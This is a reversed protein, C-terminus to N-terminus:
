GKQEKITVRIHASEEFIVGKDNETKVELEHYGAKLGSVDVYAKIKEAAGQPARVTLNVAEPRLTATMGLPVNRVEVNLSIDTRVLEKLELKAKVSRNDEPIYIGEPIEATLTYEQEQTTYDDPNFMYTIKSIKEVDVEESKIGVDIKNKSASKVDLMYKDRNKSLLFDTDLSKREYVYNEVVLTEPPNILGDVRYEADSNDIFYYSLEKETFETIDSIDVNVVVAKLKALASKAGRVTITQSKPVSNVITNKNKDTGTQKVQVPVVKDVLEEVQVTIIEGMRGEVAVGSVGMNFSVAKNWTGVGNIDAVNIYAGMVSLAEIVSSRAGRIRVDVEDTDDKNILVLGKDVLEQEGYFTVPVNKVTQTIVPNVTYILILWIIIAIVVSLLKMIIKMNKVKELM